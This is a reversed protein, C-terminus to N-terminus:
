IELGQVFRMVAAQLFNGLSLNDRGLIHERAKASAM